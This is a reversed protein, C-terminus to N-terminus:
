FVVEFEDDAIELVYLVGDVPKYQKTLLFRLM